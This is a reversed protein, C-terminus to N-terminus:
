AREEPQPQRYQLRFWLWFCLLSSAVIDLFFIWLTPSSWQVESRFRLLQIVVGFPLIMFTPLVRRIRYWDNEQAMSIQLLGVGGLFVCLVRTTLPTVAWPAIAALLVPVLYFLVALGTLLLGNIRLFQRGPIPLPQSGGQGVAASRSQHWLYTATFIPPPLLYSIFWVRFPLSTVSFKDWHLLTTVLMLTTFIIAPVIIVRVEQWYRALFVNIISVAVSLYFAGFLAAMVTPNIPWSFNTSSAQPHIFVSGIALVGFLIEVALWLRLLLSVPTKLLKESPLTVM